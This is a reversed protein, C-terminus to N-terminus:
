RLFNDYNWKIPNWVDTKSNKEVTSSDYVSLCIYQLADHSHSVDNKLPVDKYREEGVLMVKQYYYDKIFGRRITKCLNRDVLLASKGNIMKNLFHKVANIRSEINNTRATFAPLNAKTLISISSLLNIENRRVSSPDCQISLLTLGKYYLNLTPILMDHVFSEISTNDSTIERLVKLVGNKSFQCFVVAPTLGYDMGLILPSDDIELSDRSHLDDNYEPYVVKGTRVNGWEGLAYVKIFEQDQGQIMDLYYNKNRLNEINDADPNNIYTGDVKLLGPPQKFLAYGQPRNLYFNKYMWHEDDSANTDCIIGAWYPSKEGNVIINSKEITEKDFFTKPPYRLRGILHPIILPISESLENIYGGTVELSRLKDLDKPRDLSLPVLELIVKGKDDNFTHTISFYPNTKKKIDGLAYTWDYWSRLTTQLLKSYTSRIIVWRSLRTGDFIPPMECARRIIEAICAITKGSGYPGLILRVNENSAHFKKLTPSTLVYSFEKRKESKPDYFNLNYNEIKVNQIIQASKIRELEELRKRLTSIQM